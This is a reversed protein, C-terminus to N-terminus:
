ADSKLKYAAAIRQRASDAIAHVDLAWAALAYQFDRDLQRDDNTPDNPLPPVEPHAPTTIGLDDLLKLDQALDHGLYRRVADM